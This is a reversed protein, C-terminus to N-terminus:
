SKRTLIAYPVMRHLADERYATTTEHHFVVRRGNIGIDTVQGALLTRADTEYRSCATVQGRVDVLEIAGVLMKSALRRMEREEPLGIAITQRERIERRAQEFLVSDEHPPPLV